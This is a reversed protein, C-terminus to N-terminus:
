KTVTILFSQQGLEVDEKKTITRFYTFDYDGFLKEIDSNDFHQKHDPANFSYLVPTTVIVQKGAIRVLEGIAKKPDDLHEITESCIVCDFHNDLFPLDYVSAVKFDIKYDYNNKRILNEVYKIMKSDIDIGTVKYGCLSLYATIKSGECGVDAITKVSPLIKSIIQRDKLDIAEDKNKSIEYLYKAITKKNRHRFYLPKMERLLPLKGIKRVLKNELITGM